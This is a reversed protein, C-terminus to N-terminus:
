KVIDQFLKLGKELYLLREQCFINGIGHCAEKSELGERVEGPLNRMHYVALHVNDWGGGGPLRLAIGSIKRTGDLVMGIVPYMPNASGMQDRYVGAWYSAKRGLARKM